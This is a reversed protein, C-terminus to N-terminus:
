MKKKKLFSFVQEQAIETNIYSLLKSLKRINEIDRDSNVVFDQDKTKPIEVDINKNGQSFSAVHKGNELKTSFQTGILVNDSFEQLLLTTEKQYSSLQVFNIDLLANMVKDRAGGTFSGDPKVKGNKYAKLLGEQAELYNKQVNLNKGNYFDRIAPNNQYFFLIKDDEVLHAAGYYGNKLTDKRYESNSLHNFAKVESDSMVKLGNRILEGLDHVHEKNALVFKKVEDLNGNHRLTDLDKQLKEDTTYFVVGSAGWRHLKQGHGNDVWIDQMLDYIKNGNVCCLYNDVSVTKEVRNKINM